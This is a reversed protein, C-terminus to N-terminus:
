IDKVSDNTLSYVLCFKQQQLDRFGKQQRYWHSYVLCFKQQQLDYDGEDKAYDAIFWVFNRSNYICYLFPVVRQRSYVLCFKQQQLNSLTKSPEHQAIFWVFNRSNYIWDFIQCGVCPQLGFLIEVITSKHKEQAGARHSYVLCFKQQQLYSVSSSSSGQPQLGFLIEVITSRMSLSSQSRPQLGFLIEVITSIFYM